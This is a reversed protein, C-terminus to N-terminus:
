AGLESATLYTDSNADARREGKLAEIFLRAFAGDDSVKGSSQCAALTCAATLAVLLRSTSLHTM